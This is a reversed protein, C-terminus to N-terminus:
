ISSELCDEGTEELLGEESSVCFGLLHNIIRVILLLIIVMVKLYLDPFSKNLDLNNAWIWINQPRPYPKTGHRSRVRNSRNLQYFWGRSFTWDGEAWHSDQSGWSLSLLFAWISHLAHYPHHSLYSLFALYTTTTHTLQSLLTQQHSMLYCIWQGKNILQSVVEHCGWAKWPVCYARQGVKKDESGKCIVHDCQWLNVIVRNWM